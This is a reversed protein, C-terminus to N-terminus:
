GGLEEVMGCLPCRILLFDQPSGLPSVADVDLLAEDKPCRIAEGRFHRIRLTEKDEDTLHGPEPQKRSPVRTEPRDPEPEGHVRVIDRGRNKADYMASDAAKFLTTSDTSHDPCCAIGFSATISLGEIPSAALFARARESVAIAEEPSHNPLIIVIEEGGYRYVKGKGQAVVKLRRACEKLVVDGIAHGHSDNVKKFRDIDVVVIALCIDNQVASQIAQPYETDFLQRDLLGTLSDLRDVM